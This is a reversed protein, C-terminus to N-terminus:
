LQLIRCKLLENLPKLLRVSKSNFMLSFYVIRMLLEGLRNAPTRKFLQRLLSQAGPSLMQPM